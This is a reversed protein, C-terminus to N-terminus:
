DESEHSDVGEFYSGLLNTVATSGVRKIFERAEIHHRLSIERVMRVINSIPKQRWEEDEFPLALDKSFYGVLIRISTIDFLWRGDSQEAHAASVEEYLKETVPKFSDDYDGSVNMLDARNLIKAEISNPVIDVASSIIADEALEIEDPSYGYRPAATVFLEASYKEKSGYTKETDKKGYGADHYLVAGVLVKRNVAEGQQMCRDALCMVDWLGEKAHQFNHQPLRVNYQEEADAWLLAFQEETFGVESVWVQWFLDRAQDSQVPIAEYSGAKLEQLQEPM